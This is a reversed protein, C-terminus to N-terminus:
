ESGAGEGEPDEVLSFGHTTKHWFSPRVLLEYVALGAAIISLIYYLPLVYTYKVKDWMGESRRADGLRSARDLISSLALAWALLIGVVFTGMSGYYLVLNGGYAHRTVDAVPQLPGTPSHAMWSGVWNGWYIWFLAWTGLVFFNLFPSLTLVAVSLARWPGLDEVLERPKRLNDLATQMYGKLWRSRQKIWPRLRPVAEEWTTSDIVATTYGRRALRVGLDADETVNYANWGGLEQLVETRLFNSTGGLLVVNGAGEWAPLFFDFWMSYEITFLKTLLSQDPNYYNLRCQICALSPEPHAAFYTAVKRLQDSEPRDEADYITVLEGRAHQLGVNLARPKTKPRGEPVEVIDVFLENGPRRDWVRVRNGPLLDYTLGQREIEELGVIAQPTIRDDEELLLKVDLKDRPYDFGFVSGLLFPLTDREKYLPLLVTITPLEPDRLHPQALPLNTLRRPRRSRVLTAMVFLDLAAYLLTSAVAFMAILEVAVM